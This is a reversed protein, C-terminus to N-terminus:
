NKDSDIPSYHIKYMEEIMHAFHEPTMEIEPEEFEPSELIKLEPDGVLGRLLYLFPELVQYNAKASVEFYEFYKKQHFKVQKFKVAREASDVKNGVLVMPIKDCVRTVDRYWKPINKYTTKSTVDFMLIACDANISHGERLGNWKTYDPFDWVNLIFKGHTTVFTLPTITIYESQNSTTQSTKFRQLFATNGVKSDGLLLLKYKIIEDQDLNKYINSHLLSNQETNSLM